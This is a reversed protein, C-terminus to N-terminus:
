SRIADMAAVILGRARDGTVAQEWLKDMVREYARAEDGRVFMEATFTEIAVVTGKDGMYIQFSNQPTTPLEVGMPVIGFRVRELGIVTQLRDLQERMVAAPCILWRLVPETILFEFQKSPNYLMQQRQLRAALAADVDDIELDHLDVMETLVSRAYSPVQLFGPVFATEFYRILHAQSTLDNHDAQVRAQGREMRVRFAERMSRAEDALRQLEELEVADASCAGAWRALDDYSPIQTGGEIRSVKSQAWGHLDALAKGSLGARARLMRLRTALGEPQTMWDKLSEM